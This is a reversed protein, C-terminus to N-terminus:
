RVEAEERQCFTEWTGSWYIPDLRGYRGVQSSFGERAEQQCMAEVGCVGTIATLPWWGKSRLPWWHGCVVLQRGSIQTTGTVCWTGRAWPRTCMRNHLRLQERAKKQSSGRCIKDCLNEWESWRLTSKRWLGEWSWGSYGVGGQHLTPESPLFESNQKSGAHEM